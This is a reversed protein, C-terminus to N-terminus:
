FCTWIGLTNYDNKFRLWELLPGHKLFHVKNNNFNTLAICLYDQQLGFQIQLVKYKNIVAFSYLTFLRYEIPGRLLLMYQLVEETAM